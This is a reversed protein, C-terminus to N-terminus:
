FVFEGNELFEYDNAEIAAIMAEDSTQYEYEKQLIISYDELIDRLFEDECENLADEADRLADSSGDEDAEERLYVEMLESHKELFAEATSYTSCTDGHDRIINAAVETASLTLEGEAHRNRDLDFGTIKVGIREADEYVCEWWEHTVNIDAFEALANRKADESLESFTYINRTITETRM